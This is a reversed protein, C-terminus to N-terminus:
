SIGKIGLNDFGGQSAMEALREKQRQYALFLSGGKHDFGLDNVNLVRLGLTVKARIPNLRPDFAEETVSFDTIRVPVIRSRSWVFLLLPSQAPAIELAGSDALRQNAVLQDSKPYLIAELAAIQPHLGHEAVKPNEGPLELQDTADIEAELTFTEIPPGKLRLAQSRDGEDGGVAQARLTRSLSDPNYQFTIIRLVSGTEPDALVLGAKLLRPSGSFGTM